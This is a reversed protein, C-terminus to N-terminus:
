SPPGRYSPLSRIWQIAADFGQHKCIHLTMGFPELWQLPSRVRDLTCLAEFDADTLEGLLRSDEGLQAALEEDSALVENLGLEVLRKRLRHSFEVQHRGLTAEAFDAFLEGARADGQGYDYLLQFPTRGGKRAGKIHQSAMEREPGWSRDHGFKTLYEEASLARRCDVGVAKRVTLGDRDQHEAFELPLPLDVSGCATLWEKFLAARFDEIEAATLRRDFFWLQHLHPHWGNLGHTMETTSIRGVYGLKSSVRVRRGKVTRTYGMLSKYAYTRQQIRDAEKLKGLLDALDDGAGHRITFTVMVADGWRSVARSHLDSFEPASTVFLDYAARIQAQRQLNIRRSCVPCTWVSGCVKVKHFTARATSDSYWVEPPTDRSIKDRCCNCVRFRAARRQVAEGDRRLTEVRFRERVRVCRRPVPELDPLWVIESWPVRVRKDRDEVKMLLRRAWGKLMWRELDAADQDYQVVERGRKRSKDLDLRVIEGTEPDIREPLFVAKGREPHTDVYKTLKGLRARARARAV